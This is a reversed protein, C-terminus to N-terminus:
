SDNSQRVRRIAFSGVAGTLAALIGFGNGTAETTTQTPTNASTAPSASSQEVTAADNSSETETMPTPTATTQAPAVTEEHHQVVAARMDRNIEHGADDFIEIISKANAGKYVERTVPLRDTIRNEGFVAVAKDNHKHSIPYYGRTDSDPLPQDNRGVFIYQSISAWAERNFERGTISEYDATGLPYPTETGAHSDKPLPYAGNGGLSVRSVREPNLFAYRASFQASASFGVMQIQDAIPHNQETLQEKAHDIMGSVQEDIRELSSAPFKDTAAHKLRDGDGLSPLALSQIFDPGDDPTRPLGPVLAPLELLRAIQFLPHNIRRQLESRLEEQTEVSPGNLPLVFLPQESESRQDPQYLLYPNSFGAEPDPEVIDVEGDSVEPTGQEQASAGTVAPSVSLMTCTAGLRLVDRRSLNKAKTKM